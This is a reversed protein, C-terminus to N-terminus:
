LIQVWCGFVKQCWDYVEFLRWNRFKSYCFNRWIGFPLKCCWNMTFDNLSSTVVFRELWHLRCFPVACPVWLEWLASINNDLLQSLVWPSSCVSVFWNTLFGSMIFPVHNSSKWGICFFTGTHVCYSDRVLGPVMVLYCKLFHGAIMLERIHFYTICLARPRDSGQFLCSSESM